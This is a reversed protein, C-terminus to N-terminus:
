VASSYAHGTHDLDTCALLNSEARFLVQRVMVAQRLGVLVLLRCRSAPIAGGSILLSVTLLASLSRWDVSGLCGSNPDSGAGVLNFVLDKKLWTWSRTWDLASVFM